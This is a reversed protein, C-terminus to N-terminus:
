IEPFFKLIVKPMPVHPFFLKFTQQNSPVVIKVKVLCEIDQRIKM